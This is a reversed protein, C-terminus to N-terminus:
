NMVELVVIECDDENRGDDVEELFLVIVNDEIVDDDRYEPINDEHPLQEIDAVSDQEQTNTSHHLLLLVEVQQRTRKIKCRQKRQMKKRGGM